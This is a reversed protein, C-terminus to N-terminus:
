IYVQAANLEGRKAQRCECPKREKWRDSVEDPMRRAALEGAFRFL